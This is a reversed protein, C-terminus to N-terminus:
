RWWAELQPSAPWSSGSVDQQPTCRIPQFAERSLRASPGASTPPPSSTLRICVDVRFVCKRDALQSKQRQEAPLLHQFNQRVAELRGDDDEDVLLLTAVHQGLRQLLHPYAALINLKYSVTHLLLILYKELRKEDSVVIIKSPLNLYCCNM